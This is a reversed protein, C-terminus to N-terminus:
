EFTNYFHLNGQRKRFLCSIVSPTLPQKVPMQIYAVRLTMLFMCAYSLIIGTLKPTNAIIKLCPNFFPIAHTPRGWKIAYLDNKKGGVYDPKNASRSAVRNWPKRYLGCSFKRIIPRSM